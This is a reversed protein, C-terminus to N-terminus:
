LPTGDLNLQVGAVNFYDVISADEPCRDCVSVIRATGPPDSCELASLMTRGCRPCELTIQEASV